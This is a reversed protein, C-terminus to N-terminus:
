FAVRCLGAYPSTFINTNSLKATTGLFNVNNLPCWLCANGVQVSVNGRFCQVQPRAAGAGSESATFEFSDHGATVALLVM